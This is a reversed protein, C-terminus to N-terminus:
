QKDDDKKYSNIEKEYEDAIQKMKSLIRPIGLYCFLISLIGIIAWLLDKDIYM